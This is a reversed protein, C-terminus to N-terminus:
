KNCFLTSHRGLITAVQWFSATIHTLVNKVPFFPSTLFSPMEEIKGGAVVFHALVEAGRADTDPVPCSSFVPTHCPPFFTISIAREKRQKEPVTNELSCFPSSITRYDMKQWLDHTKSV